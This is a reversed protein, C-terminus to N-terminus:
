EVVNESIKAEIASIRQVLFDKRAMRSEKDNQILVIRDDLEQLVSYIESLERRDERLVDEVNKRIEQAPIVKEPITIVMENRDLVYEQDLNNNM